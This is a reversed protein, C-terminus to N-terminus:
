FCKSNKLSSCLYYEYIPFNDNIPKETKFMERSQRKFKTIVEASELSSYGDSLEKEHDLFVKHFTSKILPCSSDIIKISENFFCELSSNSAILNNGYSYVSDFAMTVGSTVAAMHEEDRGNISLIFLGDSRLIRAIEKYYTISKVSTAGSMYTYALNDIIIDVSHASSLNVYQRADGQIINVKDSFLAGNLLKSAREGSLVEVLEASWDVVNIKSIAKENAFERVMGGGGLGLILMEEKELSSLAFVELEVHRPHNPLASNYHGNIRVEGEIGNPLSESLWNITAVGTPGEAGELDGSREYFRYLNWIDNSILFPSISLLVVLTAKSFLTSISEQNFDITIYICALCILVLCCVVGKIGFVSFLLFQVAMVIAFSGISNILYILGTSETLQTRQNASIKILIPFIGGQFFAFPAVLCIYKILLQFFSDTKILGQIFVSFVISIASAFFLFNLTSKAKIISNNVRLSFFMSGLGLSFLFIMLILPFNYASSPWNIGALRFFVIEMSLALGGSFFALTCLKKESIAEDFDLSAGLSELNKQLSENSNLDKYKHSYFYLLLAILFNISGVILLTTPINIQNFFITPISVIGLCAGLTNLGYIFGLNKSSYNKGNLFSEFLIPLTGGILVCPILLLLFSSLITNLLLHSIDSYVLLKSNLVSTLETFIFYSFLAFISISFELYAYARIPNKFSKRFLYAGLGLGLIFTSTVIFSSVQDGGTNSKIIREWAVQYVLSCFGSLFVILPILSVKINPM